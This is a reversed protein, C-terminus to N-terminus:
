KYVVDIALLLAYLKARFISAAHLLRVCKTNDRHVVAAAVRNGEKSSPRYSASVTVVSGKYLNKRRVTRFPPGGSHPAPVSTVVICYLDMSVAVDIGYSPLLKQPKLGLPSRIIQTKHRLPRATFGLLDSATIPVRWRKLETRIMERHWLAVAAKSLSAKGVLIRFSM